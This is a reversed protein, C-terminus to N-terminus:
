VHARGIKILDRKAVIDTAESGANDVVDAMDPSVFVVCDRRGTSPSNITGGAINDIVYEAVTNSHAGTMILSIDYTDADDFYDYATTIDSDRALTTGVTGNTLIATYSASGQAYSTNTSTNGWSYTDSMWGYTANDVLAHNLINIYESRDNIVNVYYNSSGDDNKADSAKSLYSFKELITNATGSILGNYDVVLIHMEDNAGRHNLVYNSTGPKGDFNAYYAWQNFSTTNGADAFLSVRISNGLDGAYKAVFMGYKKAASMNKYTNDYDEDNKILIGTNGSTANLASAVNAARVLKLSEAYGLFNAATFWSTFNSDNPKHFVRALEIENSISVVENIPGWAFDGVFAGETTSVSPVITTLDIESWTVGPSLSYAM